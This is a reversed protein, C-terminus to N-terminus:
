YGSMDGVPLKVLRLRGMLPEFRVCCLRDGSLCLRIYLSFYPEKFKYDLLEMATTVSFSSSYWIEETNSLGSGSFTAGITLSELTTFYDVLAKYFGFSFCSFAELM